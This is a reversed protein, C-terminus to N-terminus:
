NSYDEPNITLDVFTNRTDERDKLIEEWEEPDDIRNKLENYYEDESIHSLDKSSCYKCGSSKPKYVRYLANCDKCLIYEFVVDLSTTPLPYGGWAEFTKIYKM